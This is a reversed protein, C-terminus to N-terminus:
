DPYPSRPDTPDPSGPGPSPSCPDEPEPMAADISQARKM